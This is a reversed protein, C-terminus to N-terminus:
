YRIPPAVRETVRYASPPSQIPPTPAAALNIPPHTPVPMAFLNPEGSLLQNVSYNGVSLQLQMPETGPLTLAIQVQHPLVVGTPTPGATTDAIPYYVANTAISQALRRGSPDYLSQDTVYGASPDIHYIAIADGATTQQRIEIKGDSTRTPSAIVRVPDIEPLGIADILWTPDVSLMSRTPSAAYQDHRAFYMTKRMALGEPIEFWFADANSGIDLVNGLVLPVSCRLRLDKERRAHITTKLKPIQPQSLVEITASNTSLERVSQSRNVAAAIEDITPVPSIAVPPPPPYPSPIPGRNCTAGTTVMLMATIGAIRRLQTQWSPPATRSTSRDTM